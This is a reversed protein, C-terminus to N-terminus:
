ADIRNAQRKDRKAQGRPLPNVPPIHLDDRLAHVKLLKQLIKSSAPKAKATTKKIIAM